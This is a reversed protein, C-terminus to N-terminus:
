GVKVKLSCPGVITGAFPGAQVPDTMRAAALYPGIGSGITIHTLSADSHANPDSHLGPIAIADTLRHRGDDAPSVEGGGAQWKDIPRDAFVLLVEDGVAVPFTIRFTGSGPFALPVSSIVPLSVDVLEGSENEFQEKLLPKVDVHQKSADYRVVKAPCAVHTEKLARAMAAKIVEAPTPARLTM